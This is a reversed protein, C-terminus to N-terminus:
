ECDHVVEKLTFRVPKDSKPVAVLHYPQTLAMTVMCGAGPVSLVAQAEVVGARESVDTITMTYGGTNRLTALGLVETTAFDVAPAPDGPTADGQLEAWLEEFAAPDEVVIERPAASSVALGSYIGQAVTVAASVLTATIM